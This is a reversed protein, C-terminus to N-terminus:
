VRVHHKGRMSVPKMNCVVVVKKDKLDDMPIHKALGSIVTLPAQHVCTPTAIVCTACQYHNM